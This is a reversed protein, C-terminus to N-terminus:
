VETSGPGTPGGRSYATIHHEKKKSNFKGLYDTGSDGQEVLLQHSMGIPQAISAVMHGMM